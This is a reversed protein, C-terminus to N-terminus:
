PTSSFDPEMHAEINFRDGTDTPSRTIPAFFIAENFHKTEEILRILGPADHTIGTLRVKGAEMHLETVFTHDPLIQSLVDLAIVASPSDNKRQALALEALMKPDGPANHAREIAVRRTTIRQAIEDQQAALRGGIIADATGAAATSLIAVALVAVLARRVFRTDLARGINEELITIDPTGLEANPVATRVSIANAGADTIAKLFPLIVTNATAAVTIAIRGSGVDRPKAFGFTVHEANWPTLRDIQARVVADLFETARSPLELPRFLFRDTRLILEVRSGRLASSAGDPQAGAVAGNAIQLSDLGLQGAGDAPLVAFQGYDGESLRVTRITRLAALGSVVAAAVLDLWLRFLRKIDGFSIM